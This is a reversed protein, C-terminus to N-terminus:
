SAAQPVGEPPPETAVGRQPKRGATLAAMAVGAATVGAVLNSTLAVLPMASPGDGQVISVRAVQDLFWVCLGFALAAALGAGVGALPARGPRLLLGLLLAFSGAVVFLNLGFQRAVDLWVPMQDLAATGLMANLWLAVPNDGVTAQTVLAGAVFAAGGVLAAVVVRVPSGGLRRAAVAGFLGGAGVIALVPRWFADSATSCRFDNLECGPPIFSVDAVSVLGAHGAFPLAAALGIALCAVPAELRGIWTRTTM